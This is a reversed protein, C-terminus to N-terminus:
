YVLGKLPKYTKARFFHCETQILSAATNWDGALSKWLGKTAGTGRWSGEEEALCHIFHCERYSLSPKLSNHIKM